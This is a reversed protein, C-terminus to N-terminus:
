GALTARGSPASTEVPGFSSTTTGADNDPVVAHVPPRVLGHDHAM